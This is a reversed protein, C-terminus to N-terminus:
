RIDSAGATGPGRANILALDCKGERSCFVLGQIVLKAPTDDPFEIRYKAKLLAPVIAALKQDGNDFIASEIKKGENSFVLTFDGSGSRGPLRGLDATRLKSLYAGSGLDHPGKPLLGLKKAREATATRSPAVSLAYDYYERAKIKDGVKEYTQAIKDAVSAAQSWTWVAHLYKLANPYDGREFYAAGIASWSALLLNTNERDKNSPSKVDMAVLANSYHTASLRLNAETMQPDGSRFDEVSQSFPDRGKLEPPGFTIDHGETLDDAKKKEGNIKYAAALMGKAMLNNPDIKNALELQEVGDKTRQQSMLLIGLHLHPLFGLPDIELQKRFAAEGEKAKRSQMYAVGLVDYAGEEFPNIAVQKLSADVADQERGSLQYAVSLYKWASKHRPELELVRKFIAVAGDGNQVKVANMGAIMLESVKADAPIEPVQQAGASTIVIISVFILAILFRGRPSIRM